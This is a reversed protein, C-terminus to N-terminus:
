NKNQNDWDSHSKANTSQNLVIKDGTELLLFFEDEKLLFDVGDDITSSNKTQNSFAM